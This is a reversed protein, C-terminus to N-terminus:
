AEKANEYETLVTGPCAEDAVIQFIKKSACARVVPRAADGQVAAPLERAEL